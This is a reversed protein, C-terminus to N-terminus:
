GTLVLEIVRSALRTSISHESVLITLCHADEEAFRSKARRFVLEEHYWQLSRPLECRLRLTQKAIANALWRQSEHVVLVWHLHQKSHFIFLCHEHLAM